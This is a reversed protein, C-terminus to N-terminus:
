MGEADESLLLARVVEADDLDAAVFCRVSIRTQRLAKNADSAGDIGIQLYDLADSGAVPVTLRLRLLSCHGAAEHTVQVVTREMADIGEAVGSCVVGAIAVALSHPALEDGGALPLVVTVTDDTGDAGSVAVVPVVAAAVPEHLGLAERAERAEEELRIRMRAPLTDLLGRQVAVEYDSLTQRHQLVEVSGETATRDNWGAELERLRFAASRLVQAVARARETREAAGLTTLEEDLGTLRADVETLATEAERLDQRRAEVDGAADQRDSQLQLRRATVGERLTDHYSRVEDIDAFLTPDTFVPPLPLPAAPSIPVAEVLREDVAAESLVVADASQAPAHFRERLGDNIVRLRDMLAQDTTPPSISVLLRRAILRETDTLPEAALEEAVLADDLESAAILELLAALEPIDVLRDHWAAFAEPSEWPAGVEDAAARVWPLDDRIRELHPTLRAAETDELGMGSLQPAPDDIAETLGLAFPLAALATTVDEVGAIVSVTGERVASEALGEEAEATDTIDAIVADILMGLNARAWEPLELCGAVLNRLVGGLM